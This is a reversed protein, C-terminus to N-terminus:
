LVIYYIAGFITTQCVYIQFKVGLTGGYHHTIVSMRPAVSVDKPAIVSM